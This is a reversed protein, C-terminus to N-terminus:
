KNDDLSTRYLYEAYKWDDKDNIDISEIKSTILPIAYTHFRFESKIFNETNFGYFAGTEHVQINEIYQRGLRKHFPHNIPQWFIGEDKESQSEKWLFQHAESAAFITSNPNDLLKKCAEVYRKSSIFPATCQIMFCFKPREVKKLNKLYELVPTDTMVHDFSESEKNRMCGIAGALEAIKLIETDDSSVIIKEFCKSDRLTQISRELLSAGCFDKINKKPVGKSGGRAPIVAWFRDDKM